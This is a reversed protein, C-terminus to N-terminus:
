FNLDAPNLIQLFRNSYIMSKAADVLAVWDSLFVGEFGKSM